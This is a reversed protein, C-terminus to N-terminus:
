SDRIKCSEYLSFTRMLFYLYNRPSFRNIITSWYRINLLENKQNKKDKWLDKKKESKLRLRVFNLNM